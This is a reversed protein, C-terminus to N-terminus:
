MGQKKTISMLNATSLINRIEALIEEDTPGEMLAASYASLRNVQAGVFEMDQNRPAMSMSNRAESYYDGVASM